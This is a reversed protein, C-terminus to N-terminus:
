KRKEEKKLCEKIVTVIFDKHEDIQKDVEVTGEMSAKLLDNHYGKVKKIAFGKLLHHNSVIFGRDRESLGRLNHM